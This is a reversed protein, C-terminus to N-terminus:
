REAAAAAENADSVFGVDVIEADYGRLRENVIATSQRLMPLLEPFQPWDAGLGGAVLGIVPQASRAAVLPTAITRDPAQETMATTARQLDLDAATLEGTRARPASM